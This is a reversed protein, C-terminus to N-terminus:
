GPYDAALRQQLERAQRFSEKLIRRDITSLERADIRNPNAQADASDAAAALRHQARLRLSQLFQFAATWDRAERAPLAGAQMLQDFRAATGTARV